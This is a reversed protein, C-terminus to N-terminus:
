TNISKDKLDIEFLCCNPERQYHLPLNATDTLREIGLFNFGASTYHQILKTNNGLTDLRIFQKGSQKAYEKSWEVIDDIYRHGRFSPHTSIRHVYISDNKDREGWIEPDEFAIVWICAINSHDDVIKWQRKEEIEKEIFTKEFFPWIVMQRQAQLNRAAEYLSMIENVDSMVCNKIEM